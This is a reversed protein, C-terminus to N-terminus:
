RYSNRDFPSLNSNTNDTLSKTLIISMRASGIILSKRGSGLSSTLSSKKKRFRQRHLRPSPFKKKRRHQSYRSLRKRPRHIIAMTVLTRAIQKIEKTGIKIVQM